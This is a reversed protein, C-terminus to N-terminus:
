HTIRRRTAGEDIPLGSLLRAFDESSIELCAGDAPEAAPLPFTGKALRKYRVVFQM